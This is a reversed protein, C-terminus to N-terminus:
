AEWMFLGEAGALLGVTKLMEDTGGRVAMYLFDGNVTIEAGVSPLAIVPAGRPADQAVCGMVLSTLASPAPNVIRFEAEFDTVVFDYYCNLKVLLRAFRQYVEDVQPRELLYDEVAFYQGDGDAPVRRPLIDVIWVRSEEEQQPM